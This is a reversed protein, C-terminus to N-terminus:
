FQASGERMRIASFSQPTQKLVNEVTARFDIEILGKMKEADRPWVFRGSFDPASVRELEEWGTPWKKEPSQEVAIVVLDCACMLAQYRDEAALMEKSTRYAIYAATAGMGVLVIGLMLVIRGWRQLKPSSSAGHEGKADM